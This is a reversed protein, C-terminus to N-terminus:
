KKFKGYFKPSDDVRSGKFFDMMESLIIKTKEADLIKKSLVFWKIIAINYGNLEFYGGDKIKQLHNKFEGGEKYM